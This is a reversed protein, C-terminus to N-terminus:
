RGPIFRGTAPDVYGGPVQQLVRGTVPDIATRGDPVIARGTRPDFLPANPRPPAPV